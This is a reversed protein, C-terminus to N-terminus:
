VQLLTAKAASFSSNRFLFFVSIRSTEKEPDQAPKFPVVLRSLNENEAGVCLAQRWNGVCLRPWTLTLNVFTDFVCNATFMGEIIM